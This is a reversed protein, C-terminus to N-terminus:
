YEKFKYIIKSISFCDFRQDSNNSTTISVYGIIRQPEILDIGLSQDILWVEGFEARLKRNHSCFIKPLENYEVIKQIKLKLNNNLLVIARIRGM